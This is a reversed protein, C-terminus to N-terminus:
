AIAEAVILRAPLAPYLGDGRGAFYRAALDAETAHEVIRFGRERLMREFADPPWSSVWPEGGQRAVKAVSRLGERQAPTLPVDAHYNLVLHSGTAMCTRVDALTAETASVTVYPITNMWSWVSPRSPDFATAALADSVRTTEFDVAVFVPIQAPKATAQAIRARKLRQVDPFDVEFVRLRDALDARRLAFTDFGAGLIVYQDIGRAVSREVEDEAYRLSGIGIALIPRFDIGTTERVRADHGPDRAIARSAPGLLEIAWTDDLVPPEAHLAHTARGLVAGEATGLGDNGGTKAM